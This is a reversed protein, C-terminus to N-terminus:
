EEKEARLLPTAALIVNLLFSTTILTGDKKKRKQIYNEPKLILYPPRRDTNHVGVFQSTKSNYKTRQVNVRHM